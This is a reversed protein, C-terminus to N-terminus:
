ERETHELRPVMLKDLYVLFQDSPSSGPREGWFRLAVPIDGKARM